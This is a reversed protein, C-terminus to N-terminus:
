GATTRCATRARNGRFAPSTLELGLVGIHDRVRGQLNLLASWLAADNDRYLVGKLLPVILASLELAPPPPDTARHTDPDHMSM